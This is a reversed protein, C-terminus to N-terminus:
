VEGLYRIDTPVPSGGVDELSIAFVAAKEVFDVLIFDESLDFVGMSQPDGAAIYWLQYQKGIPPEPLQEVDLYAAKTASDRHLFAIIGANEEKLSKMSTSQNAAARLINLKQTLAAIQSNTAECDRQLAQYQTESTNLQKQLSNSQQSLSYAYALIGILLAGLLVALWNFSTAVSKVDNLGKLVLADIANLIRQSLGPRLPIANAQAYKLLADEFTEIETRIEPHKEANRLVEGREADSLLGLVYQELIGSKIYEQVNM